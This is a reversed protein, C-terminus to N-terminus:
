EDILDRPVNQELVHLVGQIRKANREVAPIEHEEGLERLEETTEALREIREALEALPVGDSEDTGRREPM